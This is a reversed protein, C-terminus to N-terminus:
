YNVAACSQSVTCSRGPRPLAVELVMRNTGGSSVYTEGVHNARTGDQYDITVTYTCRFDQSGGLTAFVQARLSNQVPIGCHSAPQALVIMPFMLLASLGALELRNM